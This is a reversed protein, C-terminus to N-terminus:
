NCVLVMTVVKSVLADKMRKLRGEDAFVLADDLIDTGHPALSALKRTLGFVSCSWECVINYQERDYSEGASDLGGITHPTSDDSM